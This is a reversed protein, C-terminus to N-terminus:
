LMANSRQSLIPLSGLFRVQVVEILRLREVKESDRLM